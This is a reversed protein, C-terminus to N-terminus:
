EHHYSFETLLSYCPISPFKRLQPFEILFSVALIKSLPLLSFADERPDPFYCPDESECKNM